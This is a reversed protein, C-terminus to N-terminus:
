PPLRFCALYSQTDQLYVLALGGVPKTPAKSSLPVPPPPAPSTDALVVDFFARPKSHSPQRDAFPRPSLSREISVRQIGTASAHEVPRPSGFELQPREFSLPLSRPMADFLHRPARHVTGLPGWKASGATRARSDLPLERRQAVAASSVQAM